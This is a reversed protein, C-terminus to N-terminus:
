VPDPEYTDTGLVIFPFVTVTMPSYANLVQVPIELSVRGPVILFISRYAKKLHEFMNLRVIGFLTVSISSPANQPHALRVLKVKGLLIM